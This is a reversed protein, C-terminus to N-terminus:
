ANVDGIREKIYACILRSVSEVDATDVVEVRQHMYKEPISILATKIGKESISIVDANTGTRGSMIECQYPISNKEAADVLKRSIEKDLIPSFGIMAGKSLEGCESKDCGPTFAFSVDVSIAEDVSKAYPGVKAGRTGVEEQSSFMVTVKCGLNKLEDLCMLIAAVGSRDDLCSASVLGNLLPTFNRKFTIRDGLAVLKELKDKTLGTDIALESLKPIKKEDSASQLHPPLTSIVGKVEERGWVSVEMAPLPRADIGGCNSFKIFGDDTIDTVILGIEDLHADLLFHYGEGFTCFVNNMSDVTVDGYLSLKKKLLAAINEECGSVGVTQTLEKLLEITKEM